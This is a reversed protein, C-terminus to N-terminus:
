STSQVYSVVLFYNLALFLKRVERVEREITHTDGSLLLDVTRDNLQRFRNGIMVPVGVFSDPKGFIVSADARCQFQDLVFMHDQLNSENPSSTDYTFCPPLLKGFRSLIINPLRNNCQITWMPM